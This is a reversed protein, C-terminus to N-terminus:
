EEVAGAALEREDAMDSVTKGPLAQGQLRTVRGQMGEHQALCPLCSLCQCLPQLLFHPM